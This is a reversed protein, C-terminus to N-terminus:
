DLLNEGTLKEILKQELFKASQIIEVVMAIKSSSVFEIKLFANLEELQTGLKDLIEAIDVLIQPHTEQKAFMEKIERPSVKALKELVESSFRVQLRDPKAPFDKLMVGLKFTNNERSIRVKEQVDDIEAKVLFHKRRLRDDMSCENLQKLTVLNIGRIRFPYNDDCISVNLLSNQSPIDFLEDNPVTPHTNQQPAVDEIQLFDDDDMDDDFLMVSRSLPQMDNRSIRMTTSHSNGTSATVRFSLQDVDIDRFFDDDNFDEVDMADKLVHSQQTVRTATM